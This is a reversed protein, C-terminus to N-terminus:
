LNLSRKILEHFYIIGSEHKSSLEGDQYTGANLNSQVRECIDIDENTVEKSMAITQKINDEDADHDFLYYYQLIMTDPGTPIILELNMGNKYTNIAGYPWHWVWLGENLAEHKKDENPESEHLAIKEMPIVKYTKTNVEENLSPHIYSIHYGELYNEVYTKWNCNINHQASKHYKFNLLDVGSAAKKLDGLSDDFDPPDQSLCIFILGNWTKTHVPFLSTRECIDTESDGFDPAKRLQGDTNYIWGHYPCRLSPTKGIGENLLPAARHRCVNHYGKIENDNTRIVFLPWGAITLSIYEGPTALMSEHGFILWNEKFILTKELNYIDPDSYLSANLTKIPQTTDETKKRIIKM